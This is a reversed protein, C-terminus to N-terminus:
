ITANPDGFMSHDLPSMLHDRDQELLAISETDIVDENELLTINTDFRAKARGVAVRVTAGTALALDVESDAEFFLDACSLNFVFNVDYGVFAIAGHSVMDPGLQAATQCSLFHVIRSSVENPQYQGIEFVSTGQDGTYAIASGHGVGTIFKIPNSTLVSVVFNRRAMNGQLKQVQPLNPYVQLNRYECALRTVPEYNSDIGLIASM